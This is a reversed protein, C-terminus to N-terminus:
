RALFQEGMFHKLLHRFSQRIASRYSGTGMCKQWTSLVPWCSDTPLISPSTDGLPPPIYPSWLRNEPWLRWYNPCRPLSSSSLWVCCWRLQLLPRLIATAWFLLVMSDSYITQWRSVPQPRTLAPRTVQLLMYSASLGSVGLSELFMVSSTDLPM